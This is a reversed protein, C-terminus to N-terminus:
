EIHADLFLAMEIVDDYRGNFKVAKKKTGEVKFGLKEYLKRAAM